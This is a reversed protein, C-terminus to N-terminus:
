KAFKRWSQPLMTVKYCEKLEIKIKNRCEEKKEDGQSLHFM